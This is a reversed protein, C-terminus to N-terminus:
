PEQIPDYSAERTTPVGTPESSPRGRESSSRIAGMIPAAFLVAIAVVVLPVVLFATIGVAILVIGVAVIFLLFLAGQM